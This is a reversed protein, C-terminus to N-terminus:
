TPTLPAHAGSWVCWRTTRESRSGSDRGALIAAELERLALSPDLGTEDALHERYRAYVRLAEAQRGSAEYAKMLQEVCRERGM